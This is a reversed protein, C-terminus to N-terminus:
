AKCSDLLDNLASFDFDPDPSLFVLGSSRAAADRSASETAETIEVRGQSFQLLCLANREDTFWGKARVLGSSATSLIDCIMKRSLRQTAPYHWSVHTHDVWSEETTHDAFHWAAELLSLLTIPAQTARVQPASSLTKIWDSVPEFASPDLLDQKTLLLLDAHQIQHRVLPKVFKDNAQTRVNVCDVLTVVPGPQLLPNGHAYAKLRTPDSVGSAELVIHDLEAHRAALMDVADGLSDTLKCCICGNNLSIVDDDEAEILTADINIAGFDNVLLGIRPANPDSLMQNILTTKGAGLYGGIITFPLAPHNPM